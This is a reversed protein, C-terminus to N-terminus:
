LTANIDEKNPRPYKKQRYAGGMLQLLTCTFKPCCHGQTKWKYIDFQRGAFSHHTIEYEYYKFDPRERNMRYFALQIAPMKDKPQLDGCILEDLEEVTNPSYCVDLLSYDCLSLSIVPKEWYVAEYGTTSGFVIIKEAADMLAYTSIPSDGPIITINDGIEALEFIRKHYAYKINKLNPHIRLYFHYDKDDKHHEFITKIGQFQSPFLNNDFEEGLSVYEDESSNFIVVNHKSSDWNEPLLGQKQAGIYVKDGAPIAGRRDTFFKSGIKIKEEDSSPSEAWMKYLLETNYEINQPASNRFHTLQRGNIVNGTTEYVNVDIKRHLCTDFIPKSVTFRSNFIGVEDPQFLDLAANVIDTTIVTCKLLSDFFTRFAKDMLPYLNRTPSVYSSLAAYGIGVNNYTLKKIDSISNYEFSLNQYDLLTKKFFESIPTLKINESLGKFMQKRYCNCMRCMKKDCTTNIWCKNIPKGDCYVLIVEQGEHALIEANELTVFVRNPVIFESEFPLFLLHKM